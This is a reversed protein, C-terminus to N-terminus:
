IRGTFYIGKAISIEMIGQSKIQAQCIRPDFDSNPQTQHYEKNCYQLPHTFSLNFHTGRSFIIFSFFLLLFFRLHGYFFFPFQLVLFLAIIDPSQSLWKSQKAQSILVRIM